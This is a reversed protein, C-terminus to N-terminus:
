EGNRNIPKRAFLVSLPPGMLPGGGKKPAGGHPAGGESPGRWSPGLEEQLGGHPAGKKKPAEMLPGRSRLPGRM